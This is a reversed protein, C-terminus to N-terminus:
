KEIDKCLIYKPYSKKDFRCMECYSQAGEPSSLSSRKKTTGFYMPYEYYIHQEGNLQSCKPCSKYFKDKNYQSNKLPKKCFKCIKSM